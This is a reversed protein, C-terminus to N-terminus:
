LSQLVIKDRYKSPSEGTYEKFVRYFTAQSNFGCEVSLDKSIRAENNRLLQIAYEIRKQNIYKSFNSNLYDNIVFSLYSRNTGTARAVQPLTLNSILYLKKEIIISEMKEAIEKAKDDELFVKNTSIEPIIVDEEVIDDTASPKYIEVQRYGFYGVVWYFFSLFLYTSVTIIQNNLHDSRNISHFLIGSIFALFFAIRFIKFWNVNVIDTNSFYDLVKQKHQKIRQNTKFYYYFAFLIFILKFGKDVYFAFEYKGVVDVGLPLIENFFYLREDESFFFYQVYVAILTAIVPTIFHSLYFRKDLKEESTLSVIYQYFAPFQSLVLFVSIVYLNMFAVYDGDIFLIGSYLSVIGSLMFFSLALKHRNEKFVSITIIVFWFLAIFFPLQLIFHDLRLM